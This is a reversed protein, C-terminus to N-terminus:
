PSFMSPLPLLWSVQEQAAPPEPPVHLEGPPAQHRKIQVVVFLLLIISICLNDNEILNLMKWTKPPLTRVYFLFVFELLCHRTTAFHGPTNESVPLLSCRSLRRVRPSRSPSIHKNVSLQILLAVRRLCPTQAPLPPPCGFPSSPEDRTVWATSDLEENLEVSGILANGLFPSLYILYM